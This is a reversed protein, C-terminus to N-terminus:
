KVYLIVGATALYLLICIYLPKDTLLVTEPSGGKQERHILYLYRFVGYLVFPITYMLNNTHVRRLTSESVTYLAYTIVTSAAVVSTMQDLLPLSYADLVKRRHVAGGSILLFEQRRKGLALFLALLLTCILIWSSIEVHIAVGGAVVRLVFAIAIVFVDVIVIKKLALSYACQLVIASLCVIFFPLGLVYAWVLSGSACLVMLAVAKSMPLRGSAIPRLHKEPHNRDGERDCIDNFIYYSGSLLCFIVFAACAVALVHVNFLNRSFFLAGFVFANKTWQLPRLASLMIMIKNMARVVRNRNWPYKNRAGHNLIYAKGSNREVKDSCAKRGLTLPFYERM